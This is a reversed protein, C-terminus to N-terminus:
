KVDPWSRGTLIAGINQRGVGFKAALEEQTMEGKLRRIELVQMPTLIYRAGRTPVTGHDRKDLQNASPTKWSLHLPSVCGDAGLGCSHAAHHEPTPAPGHVLECMLRHAYHSKGNVNFRGYGRTLSFPWILCEAGSYSVRDRLWREGESKGKNYRPRPIGKRVIRSKCPACYNTVAGEDALSWTPQNKCRYSDCRFIRGTDKLELWM